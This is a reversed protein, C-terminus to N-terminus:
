RTCDTTGRTGVSINTMAKTMELQSLDSTINHLVQESIFVVTKINFSIIAGLQEKETEVYAGELM